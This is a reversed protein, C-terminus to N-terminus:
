APDPLENLRLRPQWDDELVQNRGTRANMRDVVRREPVVPSLHRRPLQASEERDRFLARRLRRRRSRLALGGTLLPDVIERHAHAVRAVQQLSESRRTAMPRVLTNRTPAPKMASM